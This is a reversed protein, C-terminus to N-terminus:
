DGEYRTNWQEILDDKSPRESATHLGVTQCYHHLRWRPSFHHPAMMTLSPPGGCFPCPKLEQRREIEERVATIEGNLRKSFNDLEELSMQKLNDM